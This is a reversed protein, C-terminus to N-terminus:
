HTLNPNEYINGIIEIIEGIMGVFCGDKFEVITKGLNNCCHADEIYDDNELIDGEYIEKGNKDKLGTYQMLIAKNRNLWVCGNIKTDACHQGFSLELTELQYMKKSESMWARFKIERM